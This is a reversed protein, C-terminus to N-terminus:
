FSLCIDGKCPEGLEALVSPLADAIDHPGNGRMPFTQSLRRGALVHLWVGLAAALDSAHGRALFAGIAGALVDGSGAVALQPVDWPSIVSPEHPVAILTGA